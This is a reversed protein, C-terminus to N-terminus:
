SIYNRNTFRHCHTRRSVFIKDQKELSRMACRYIYDNGLGWQKEITLPVNEKIDKLFVWCDAGKKSKLYDLIRDGLQKEIPKPDEKKPQEVPKIEKTELILHAFDVLSTSAMKIIIVREGNTPAAPLRLDYSSLFESLTKSSKIHNTLDIRFEKEILAKEKAEKEEQAAQAQVLLKSALENSPNNRILELLLKENTTLEM